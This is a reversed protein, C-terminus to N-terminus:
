KKAGIGLKARTALYGRSLAMRFLHSTDSDPVTARLATDMDGCILLGARDAAQQSTQVYETSKLREQGALLKTLETRARVPLLTRLAEDRAIEEPDAEELSESTGFIRWLARMLRKFESSPLGTAIIREPRALEAARALLYRTELDSSNGAAFRPGFVISPPSSCVVQISPADEADSTYLITAPADLARAIRTFVAAVRLKGTATVRSADRVGSSALAKESDPWLLAASEWLTACIAALPRDASSRILESRADSDIVNSYAEDEAMVRATHRALFAVDAESFEHGLAAALELTSRGADAHEASCLAQGYGVVDEKLLSNRALVRRFELLTQQKDAVGDWVILLARRAHMAGPSDPAQALAKQYSSLAGKKDGRKTRAVALRSWLLSVQEPDHEDVPHELGEHYNLARGLIAATAEHDEDDEALKSAIECADLDYPVSSVARDAAERGEKPLEAELFYRAAEVHRAGREQPDVTFSALLECTRAAGGRDPSDLQLLLLKRLLVIHKSELPEAAQVAAEYCSRARDPDNLQGKAMDGLAEFQALREAPVQASEAQRALYEAARPVDGQEFALEAMAQLAPAFNSKLKLAAQYLAEAKDSRKSRIEALAAHYLGAAVEAPHSEADEHEALASLHLAAERWRRAHYRNEGLALKVVLSGRHLRDANILTQYAEDFRDLKEYALALRRHLESLAEPPKDELSPLVTALLTELDSWREGQALLDAMGLIAPVHDPLCRLAEQLRQEAAPEVGAQRSFAALQTLIEVREQSELEASELRDNLLRIAGEVDGGEGVLTSLAWTADAHFPRMSLIKEFAARAEQHEGLGQLSRGAEFLAEVKADVDKLAEAERLRAAAYAAPDQLSEALRALAALATPHAPVLSLAQELVERAGALDDLRESKVSALRILLAAEDGSAGSAARTATIREQLIAASEDDREARSLALILADAIEVNETDIDHAQRLAISADEPNDLWNLMLKGRRHLLHARRAPDRALAAQQRLISDLESWRAYHQYLNDLAAFADEDDPWEDLLSSYATIARDPLELRVYIKGIRGLAERALDQGHALDCVRGLTSIVKSWSSIEEYLDAIRGLLEVNEPEISLLRELSDIADHPRHLRKAYLEALERLLAPREAVPAVSGLRPDTREELQAALDVWREESRYLDELQQRAAADDPRMGLVRRYLVETEHSRGQEHRITAVQLLLEAAAAPSDAADGADTYLAALRDWENHTSALQFLRDRTEQCDPATDLAGALVDFARAIDQAGTEWVEAARYHWRLSAAQNRAPLKTYVYALESWPSSYARRPSSPLTQRQQSLIKTRGAGPARPPASMGPMPKITPRPPPPPPPGSGATRQPAPGQPALVSGQTRGLAQILDETRIEMTPDVSQKEPADDLFDNIDIEQTRDIAPVQHAPSTINVTEETPPEQEDDAFLDGISLEQTAERRPKTSRIVIAHKTSAAVEVHAAPTEPEPRQQADPYTEIERALRWLSSLTETDEPNLIFASLHTRFARIPEKAREELAEAKRRLIEVQARTSSAREALTTEISLIQNWHKQRDGFAYLSERIDDRNPAWSFARLLDELAGEVDNAQQERLTARRLYLHIREELEAVALPLEFCDLLKTWLVKRDTAQAIREAEALLGEGQPLIMLAERLAEMAREPDNLREEAISALDRCLSVFADVNRVTDGERLEERDGEFVGALERWLGHTEATTRLENLTSANAKLEHAKRYWGFASRHDDFEDATVRGIRLMLIQKEAPVSLLGVRHKLVDIYQQWRGVKSYLEAAASLAEENDPDLALVREYSQLARKPNELRDRCILGIELGREIQAAVDETLLMEREAIRISPEFEGRNEYLRRLIKHADLNRPSVEAILTELAEIALDPSGLRKELLEARRLSHEAATESDFSVYLPIQRELIDALDRWQQSKEYLRSLANLADRDRESVKLVRQWTRASRQDDRSHADIAGALRKLEGALRAAEASGPVPIDASMLARDLVEVLDAHRDHREYLNALRELADADNPAARLVHEWREMATVEDDRKEALHALRRLLKSREVPASSSAVHYELTQELRIDDGAKDLVREMRELADRDGPLIELLGSCAYVVGEVDALHKEYMNALRRLATLRAVRTATPWERATGARSEPGLKQMELDLQRRITQALGAEDGEREYLETLSKLAALDEPFLTLVEEYLSIAGRPNVQRERYVQAIRRLAEARAEPTTAQQAEQELVGVLSEWMKARSMLRRLAQTIKQTQGGFEEIRRWTAIARDIDGLRQECLEAVSELRRTVEAAPANIARLQDIVYENLDTLGRWDRRERFHDSYRRLAEEHLPEFGLIRHLSAAAKDRDNLHERYITALDLLLAVASPDAGKAAIETEILQALAEGDRDEEFLTRLKKRFEPRGPELSALQRYCQKLEDRNDLHQEYLKARRLLLEAQEEDTAHTQRHLYLRELADWRSEQKLITELKEAAVRSGPEVGLARRLYRTAGDSDGTQMRKTGLDIFLESAQKQAQEQEVTALTDALAEQADLSQPDLDRARQLHAIAEEDAGRKRKLSGLAFEIEAERARNGAILELETEYLAIVMDEDGLSMYISRSQKLAETKKPELQFSRQWCQLAKDIRGLQDQWLAALIRYRGAMRRSQSSSDEDKELEVIESEVVNAAEAYRESDMLWEFYIKSAKEHAPDAELAKRYNSAARTGDGLKERLRAADFWHRACHVGDAEFPARIEYIEALEAERRNKKLTRKLERFLDVETPNDRFSNLQVSIADIPEQETPTVEDRM